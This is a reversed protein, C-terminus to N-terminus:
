HKKKYSFTKGSVFSDDGAPPGPFLTTRRGLHQVLHVHRDHAVFITPFGLVFLFPYSGVHYARSVRFAFLIRALYTYLICTFRITKSILELSLGFRRSTPVTIETVKKFRRFEFFNLRELM